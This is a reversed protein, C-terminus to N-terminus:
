CLTSAACLWACDNADVGCCGRGRRRVDLEDRSSGVVLMALVACSAVNVAGLVAAFEGHAVAVRMLLVLADLKVLWCM